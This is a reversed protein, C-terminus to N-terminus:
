TPATRYLYACKQVQCKARKFFKKSLSSCQYEGIIKHKQTSFTNAQGFLFHLWKKAVSSFKHPNNSQFNLTICASDPLSVGMKPSSVQSKQLMKKVFKLM